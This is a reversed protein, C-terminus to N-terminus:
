GKLFLCLLRIVVCKILSIVLVLSLIVHSLEVFLFKSSTIVIYNFSHHSHPHVIWKWGLWDTELIGNAQFSILDNHNDKTRWGLNENDHEDEDANGLDISIIDMSLILHNDEILTLQRWNMELFLSLGRDQSPTQEATCENWSIGPTPLFSLARFPTFSLHRKILLFSFHIGFFSVVFPVTM